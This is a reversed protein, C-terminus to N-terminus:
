QQARLSEAVKRVADKMDEEFLNMGALPGWIGTLCPKLLEFSSPKYKVKKCALLIASKVTESFMGKALEFESKAKDLDSVQSGVGSAMLYETFMMKKGYARIGARLYKKADMDIAMKVISKFEKSKEEPVDLADAMMPLYMLFYEPLLRKAFYNEFDNLIQKVTPDAFLLTNAYKAVHLTAFSYLNM